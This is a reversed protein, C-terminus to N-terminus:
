GTSRVLNKLSVADLDSITHCYGNIEHNYRQRHIQKLITTLREATESREIRIRVSRQIPNVRMLRSVADVAVARLWSVQFLGQEGATEM